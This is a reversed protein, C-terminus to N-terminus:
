VASGRLTLHIKITQARFVRMLTAGTSLHIHSETRKWLETVMPDIMEKVRMYGTM